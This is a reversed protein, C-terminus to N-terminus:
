FPRTAEANDTMADVLGATEEAIERCVMDEQYADQVCAIIRDPLPVDNIWDPAQLWAALDEPLEVEVTLQM